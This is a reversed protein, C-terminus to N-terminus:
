EVDEHDDEDSDDERIGVLEYAQLGPRKVLFFPPSEMEPPQEVKNQSPMPVMGVVSVITKSDIVTLANNGQYQTVYLTGYSQKLLVSDPVSWTLVLALTMVM